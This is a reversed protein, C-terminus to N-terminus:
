LERVRLASEIRSYPFVPGDKCVFSPGFQCHGCVGVACTMNRELSLFIATPRVGRHILDAAVFRMMAEPGCVFAATRAPDFNTRAVLTTIAGVEGNWSPDGADVTARVDLDFRGRWRSLERAYLLTHPTRTAVLVVVRRYDPRRALIARVLPRLPALGLGGALVVVDGGAAADIPWGEGYPGRIGLVDGRRARCVADTVPGVARVTHVLRDPKAPDGSISIPAEGIGFAYIMTFQGPRFRIPGLDDAAELELTRTDPSERQSRLVRFPRPVLAAGNGPQDM